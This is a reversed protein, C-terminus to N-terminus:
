TLVSSAAISGAVDVVDVALLDVGDHPLGGVLVVHLHPGGHGVWSSAPSGAVSCDGM